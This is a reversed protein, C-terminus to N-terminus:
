IFRLILNRQRTSPPTFLFVCLYVCPTSFTKLLLVVVFNFESILARKKGSASTANFFLGQM